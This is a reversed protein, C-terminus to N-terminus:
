VIFYVKPDGATKKSDGEWIKPRIQVHKSQNTNVPDDQLVQNSESANHTKRVGKYCNKNKCMFIVRPIFTDQM